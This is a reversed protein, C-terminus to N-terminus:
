PEQVHEPEPPRQRLLRARIRLRNNPPAPKTAASAPETSAVSLEGETPPSEVPAPENDLEPLAPEPPPLTEPTAPQVLHSPASTEPPHSGASSSDHFYWLLLALAPMAYLLKVGHRTILKSATDLLLVFLDGWSDIWEEGAVALEREAPTNGFIPKARFVWEVLWTVIWFLCVVGLWTARACTRVLERLMTAAASPPRSPVRARRVPTPRRPRFSARHVFPELQSILADLAPTRDAREIALAGMVAEELGAPIGRVLDRLPTPGSSIMRALLEHGTEVQYPLRGALGEYLIVGFAYVDTRLDVDAGQLQEPSTYLLTGMFVGSRTLALGASERPRFYREPDDKLKSLGFDLVIPTRGRRDALRALFINDPKIDRHIVGQKHAASVGRMAELLLGIFRRPELRRRALLSGLSEGDLLEMVMFANDPEEVVDYVDVVNPHRVRASARAELLFRQRAEPDAGLGGYLCKLAVRKGTRTHEAELVLGMGGAGIHRIIRYKQAIVNGIEPIRSTQSGESM